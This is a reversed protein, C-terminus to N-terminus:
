LVREEKRSRINVREGFSVIWFEHKNVPDQTVSCILHLTHENQDLPRHVLYCNIQGENSLIYHSPVLAPCPLLPFM